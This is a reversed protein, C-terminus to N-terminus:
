EDRQAAAESLCRAVEALADDATMADVRRREDGDLPLAAPDRGSAVRCMAAMLLDGHQAAEAELADIEEAAPAAAQEWLVTLVDGYTRRLEPLDDADVVWEGGELDCALCCQNLGNDAVDEGAQQQTVTVVALRDHRGLCDRNEIDYVIWGTYQDVWTFLTGKHSGDLVIRSVPQCHRGSEIATALGGANNTLTKTTM